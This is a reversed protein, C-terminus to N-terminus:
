FKSFSSRIMVFISVKKSIPYYVDPVAERTVNNICREDVGEFVFKIFM